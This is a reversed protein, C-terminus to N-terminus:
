GLKVWALFQLSAFGNTTLAPAPPTRNSAPKLRLPLPPMKSPKSTPPMIPKSWALSFRRM